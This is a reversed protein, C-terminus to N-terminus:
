PAGGETPAPKVYASEKLAGTDVPVLALSHVLLENGAERAAEAATGGQALVDRVAQAMYPAAAPIAGTLYKAQGGRPHKLSLDEHMYLAYLSAPATAGYGVAVSARKRSRGGPARAELRKALTGLGKATISLRM